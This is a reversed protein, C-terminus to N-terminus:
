HKFGKRDPTADNRMRLLEGAIDTGYETLEEKSIRVKNFQDEPILQLATTIVAMQNALEKLRDEDVTVFSAM